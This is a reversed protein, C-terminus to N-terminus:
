PPSEETQQQRRAGPNLPRRLPVKGETEHRETDHGSKNGCEDNDCLAEKDPTAPCGPSSV